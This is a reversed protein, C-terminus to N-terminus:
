IKRVLQGGGEKGNFVGDFKAWHRFTFVAQPPASFVKLVEWPFGGPFASTFVEHSRAFSAADDSENEM